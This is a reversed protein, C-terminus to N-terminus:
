RKRFIQRFQSIREAFEQGCIKAIRQFAVARDNFQLPGFSRAFKFGIRANDIDGALFLRRAVKAATEAIAKYQDPYRIPFEMLAKLADRYVRVVDSSRNNQHLEITVLAPELIVISPLAALARVNFEYDESQHLDERFGDIQIMFKRRITTSPVLLSSAIATEVRTAPDRLNSITLVRESKVDGNSFVSRVDTFVIDPSELFAAHVLESWSPEFWDDSDHFHVYDGSAELLLVNRACSPGRNKSARIIRIRGDFPIYDLAPFESEDDHILIEYVQPQQAIISQLCRTLKAKENFYTILVSIKYKM